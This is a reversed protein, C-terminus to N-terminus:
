VSVGASNAVAPHPPEALVANSLCTKNKVQMKPVVVSNHIVCDDGVRCDDMICSADIRTRQGIITNNGISSYESIVSLPGIVANRGIFVPANVQASEHIHATREVTSANQEKLLMRQASIVDLPTGLDIRSGAYVWGKVRAPAQKRLVYDAPFRERGQIFQEQEVSSMYKETNLIFTGMVGLKEKTEMPKEEVEAVFGDNRLRVMGYRKTDEVVRLTLFADLHEELPFRELTEKQINGEALSDGYQVLFYEQDRLLNRACLIAHAPGLAERQIVYQLKLGLQAGDNEFCEKITKEKWPATVIIVERIKTEHLRKLIYFLFPRGLVPIIEKPLTESIPQMRKGQGAALVVGKM